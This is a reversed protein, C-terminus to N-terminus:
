SAIAGLAIRTNVATMHIANDSDDWWFPVETKVYKAM